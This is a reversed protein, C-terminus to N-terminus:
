LHNGDRLSAQPVKKQNTKCYSSDSLFSIVQASWAEKCCTLYNDHGAENYIILKKACTMNSYIDDIEQRTVRDDKAGYQLLTPCSLSKAYSVPNHAFGWFGNEVSGWFLLIAAMPFPPVHLMSFRACVTEYM